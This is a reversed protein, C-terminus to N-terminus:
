VEDPRMVNTLGTIQNTPQLGTVDVTGLQEVYELIQSLESSYEEVEEDSLQLRALRALKLVDERTLKSMTISLKASAASMYSANEETVGLFVAKCLMPTPM